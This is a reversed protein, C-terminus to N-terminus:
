KKADGSMKAVTADKARSGASSGFYYNVVAAVASSVIGIIIDYASRNGEPIEHRVLSYLMGVLLLFLGIALIRPIPDRLAIERARANARDEADVKELDIDLARMDKKFQDEAAKLALLDTATLTAVKAELADEKPEVGLVTGLVNLAIPAIPGLTARAITPAVKEIAALWKNM